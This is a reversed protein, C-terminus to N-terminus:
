LPFRSVIWNEVTAIETASLVRSYILFVALRFNGYDTTNTRGRGINAVNAQKGFVSSTQSAVSSRNARIGHNGTTATGSGNYSHSVLTKAPSPFEGSGGLVFIDHGVGNSITSTSSGLAVNYTRYNTARTFAYRNCNTSASIIALDRGAESAISGLPEFMWFATQANIEFPTFDLQTANTSDFTVCPRGNWGTSSFAPQKGATSQSTTRGKGSLDRWESVNGGNLTISSSVGADLWMELGAISRPNFGSARPRLLRANMPAM